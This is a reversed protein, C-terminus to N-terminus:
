LYALGNWNWGLADSVNGLCHSLKVDSVAEKNLAEVVVALKMRGGFTKLNFDGDSVFAVSNPYPARFLDFYPLLM